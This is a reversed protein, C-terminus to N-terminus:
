RERADIHNQMREMRMVDDCRMEEDGHCFKGWGVSPIADM